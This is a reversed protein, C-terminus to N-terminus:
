SYMKRARKNDNLVKIGRSGFQVTKSKLTTSALKTSKEDADLSAKIKGSAKLLRIIKLRIHNFGKDKRAKGDWGSSGFTSRINSSIDKIYYGYDKTGCIDLM